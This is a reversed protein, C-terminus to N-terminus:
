TDIYTLDDVPLTAAEIVTFSAKLLEGQSSPESYVYQLRSHESKSPHTCLM